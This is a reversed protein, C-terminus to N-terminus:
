SFFIQREFDPPKKQQLRNAIQYFVIGSLIVSLGLLIILALILRRYNDRYFNNRLRVLELADDKM